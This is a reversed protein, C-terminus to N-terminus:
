RGICVVEQDTHHFTCCCEEMFFRTRADKALDRCATYLEGSSGVDVVADVHAWDVEYSAEYHCGGQVRAGGEVDYLAGAM